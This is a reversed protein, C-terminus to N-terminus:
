ANACEAGQIARYLRADKSTVSRWGKTFISQYTANHSFLPPLCTDKGALKAQMRMERAREYIALYRPNRLEPINKRLLQPPIANEIM